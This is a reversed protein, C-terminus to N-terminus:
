RRRELKLFDQCILLQSIHSGNVTLATTIIVWELVVSSDVSADRMLILDELLHLTPEDDQINPTSRWVLRKALALCRAAVLWPGRATSGLNLVVYLASYLLRSM